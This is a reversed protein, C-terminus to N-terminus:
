GSGRGRREAHLARYLSLTGDLMDDLYFEEVPPPRLSPDRMLGMVRNSLAEDDGAPIMGQPFLRTLIEGVGGHDYGVVPVGLSLAELVTRGFSEPKESLSVVLDSAAFIEKIDSRHGLFVLDDGLEVAKQRIEEAYARRRPDEGGVVLGRVSLGQGRLTKILRILAEHGKLRTLRGALTIVYRKGGLGDGSYPWDAMWSAEPHYDYPFQAPDVGRHIVRINAEPTEPYHNLIYGRVAESVAIVREGRTMIASFRHVSYLGHVTTVLSPRTNPDMGRWALYGVWAPVRSRLHLIDVKERELYRRLRWVFRLTWLRKRGVDWRLHESGERRLKKELTGGGSIVISRCGNQVLHRAVELTGREVGGSELGPLM